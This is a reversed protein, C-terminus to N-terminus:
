AAANSIAKWEKKGTFKIGDDHAYETFIKITPHDFVSFEECLEEEDRCDIAGVKIIGFMKEALLKYEDKLARSNEKSVDYFM